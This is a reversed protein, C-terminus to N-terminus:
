GLGLGYRGNRALYGSLARVVDRQLRPSDVGLGTHTVNVNIVPAPAARSSILPVLAVSPALSPAAARSFPNPLDFHLHSITDRIKQIVDQLTGFLPDWIGKIAGAIINRWTDVFNTIQGWIIKILEWALKLGIVLPAWIPELIGAIVSVAVNIIAGLLQWLFNIAQIAGSFTRVLAVIAFGLVNVLLNVVFGVVTNVVNRFTECQTWLYIFAAAVTLVPAVLLAFVAVLGIVVEKNEQITGWLDTLAKLIDGFRDSLTQLVPSLKDMLDQFAAIFNDKFETVFQKITDLTPQISDWWSTIASLMGTGLQGKDAESFATAIEGIKSKISDIAPTLAGATEAIKGVVNDKWEALTSLIEPLRDKFTQVLEALRGGIAGFDVNSLVGGVTDRIGTFVSGIRGAIGAWDVSQFADVLRGVTPIVDNVFVDHISQGADILPGAFQMQDPALEGGTMVTFFAKFADVASMITPIVNQIIFGMVKTAIPLFVEGLSASADEIQASLIRQSNAMGESTRAFDNQADATQKMILAQSALVKQQPTLAQKTTKILGQRLAEQRLSADDLLVGYKRIPESEGRLAAGIATIAEEPSTNKFSALDSALGVLQTSFGTLKDGSLGASKGFTAFTNAADVAARQSMGLSTASGKAFQQIAAFSEGFVQQGASMTEHLDSAAQVAKGIGVAAVTGIVALAAAATKAFGGIAGATQELQAKANSDDVVVKIKLEAPKASAM